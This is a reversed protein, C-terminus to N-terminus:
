SRPGLWTFKWNVPRVHTAALAYGAGRMRAMLAEARDGDTPQAFEACITGVPIQEDLVANLIAFESGEASVKLLDVREDGFERMLSSVSRATAQFSPATGHMDTASHSVFGEFVPEHFTLTEDRSWLAWPHFHFRPEHAGALEAYRAAEPVPDLAHITCGYRAILLLDFTIDTGVGALYCVSDPGLREAPLVYGGYGLDGITIM